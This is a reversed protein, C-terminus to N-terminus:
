VWPSKQSSNLTLHSIIWGQTGPATCLLSLLCQPSAASQYLESTVLTYLLVKVDVSFPNLPWFTHVHPEGNASKSMEAFSLLPWLMKHTHTHTTLESEIQSHLDNVIVQLQGLTMDRLDTPKLSRKMLCESIHPMHPLQPSFFSNAATSQLFHKYVFVVTHKALLGERM